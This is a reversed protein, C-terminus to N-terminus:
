GQIGWDTLRIASILRPNKVGFGIWRVNDFRAKVKLPLLPCDCYGPADIDRKETMTKQFRKCEGSLRGSFNRTATVRLAVLMVVISLFPTM